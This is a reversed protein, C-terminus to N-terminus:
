SAVANRLSQLAAKSAKDLTDLSAVSVGVLNAIEAVIVDKKEVPTGAKTTPEKRTYPVGMRNIKAIISRYNRPEGDATNMEPNAALEHALKLNLKGDPQAEALAVIIATQAASFNPTKEKAM